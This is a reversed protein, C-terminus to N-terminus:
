RTEKVPIPRRDVAPITTDSSLKPGTDSLAAPIASIDPSNVPSASRIMTLRSATPLVVLAIVLPTAIPEATMAETDKNPENTSVIAVCSPRWREPDARNVSGCVCISTALGVIKMPRRIPPETANRNEDRAILATPREAPM